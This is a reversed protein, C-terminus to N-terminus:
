ESVYIKVVENKIAVMPKVNKIKDYVYHNLIKRTICYIDEAVLNLILVYLSYYELLNDNVRKILINCTDPTTM